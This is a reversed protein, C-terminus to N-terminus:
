PFLVTIAGASELTLAYRAEEGMNGTREYRTIQFAGRVIDGNSFHLEYNQVANAFANGRLIEEAASDTFVGSGSLTMSQQGATTQLKRWAGAALNSADVLANDIFLRTTLLGGITAFSESPSAGDGAKLLVNKGDNATM